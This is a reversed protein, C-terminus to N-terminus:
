KLQTVYCISIMPNITFTILDTVRSSPKLGVVRAREERWDDIQKNLEKSTQTGRQILVWNEREVVGEDVLMQPPNFRFSIDGSPSVRNYM